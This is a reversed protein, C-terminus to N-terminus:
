ATKKTLKNKLWAGGAIVPIILLKGFKLVLAILGGKALLKAGVAGGLVLGALTYDAKKDTAADFDEYRHGSNFATLSLLEPTMSEVEKVQQMSAIADLVLVGRRGLVRVGYNLTNEGTGSDFEKAWHMVKKSKDYHPPLAWGVLDLKGFGAAVRQKSAERSGEKMSDMLETYNIENADEDSIYGDDEWSVTVAWSSPGILDKDKPLILGLVGTASDPPNGWITTLVTKADKQGLWRYGEPLKFTAIGNILKITGTQFQLAALEKEIAQVYAQEAATAAQETSPQEQAFIPSVTLLSITLINLLKM